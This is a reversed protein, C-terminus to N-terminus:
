HGVQWPRHAARHAHVKPKGSRDIPVGIPLAGVSTGGGSAARDVRSMAAPALGELQRQRRPGRGGPAAFARTAPAGCEPCSAGAGASSADARAEFPGCGACRYDYLPM